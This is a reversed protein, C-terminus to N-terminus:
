SLMILFNLVFTYKINTLPASLVVIHRIELTTNINHCAGIM